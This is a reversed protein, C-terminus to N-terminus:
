SVTNVLLLKTSNEVDREIIMRRNVMRKCWSQLDFLIVDTVGASICQLEIEALEQNHVPTPKLLSAIYARKYMVCLKKTTM